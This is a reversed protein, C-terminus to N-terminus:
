FPEDQDCQALRWEAYGLAMLVKAVEVSETQWTLDRHAKRAVDFWYNCGPLRNMNGVTDKLCLITMDMARAFWADFASPAPMQEYISQGLSAM